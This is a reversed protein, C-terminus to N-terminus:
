GGIWGNIIDVFASRRLGRRSISRKEWSTKKLRPDFKM